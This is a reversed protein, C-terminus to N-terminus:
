NCCRQLRVPRDGMNALRQQSETLWEPHSAAIGDLTGLLWAPPTALAYYVWQGERRDQLIGDQRLRALHRSIKPQSQALACTLECVCCEGEQRILLLLQLRTEDALGKLWGIPTSM